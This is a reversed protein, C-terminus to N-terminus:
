ASSGWDIRSCNYGEQRAPTNSCTLNYHVVTGSAFSRTLGVVEGTQPDTVNTARGVPLGLPKDFDEHWGNGSCLVYVYGHMRLYTHLYLMVMM